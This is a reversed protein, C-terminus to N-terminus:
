FYFKLVLEIVRPSSITTTIRGFTNPVSIDRAPPGFSPTNTVNFAEVRFELYREGGVEFRKSLVLDLDRYGPARAVGTGCNGFTGLAAAQFAAIDLWRDISQDSPKPDGVCNPREFGREGQLSRARGDIVTIPLGSRAQFIGGLKWGGLLANTLGSWESGWKRGPGFPLEYTGSFVFNHRVDHFAPGWDADPDYTNQWYAGETAASGASDRGGFQGYFGRNNSMAKGLTYSALFEAGHWARQRVSAQVSDYASRSRSTTTAVTTILPQVAFLPRRTNKPAWTAPDGVGPLAQNGETATVLYKARHGVYGVQASMTSTLRYEVFANWQQTFQPRLNPDYARV